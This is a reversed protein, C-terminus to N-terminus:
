PLHEISMSKVFPESVNQHWARAAIGVTSADIPVHRRRGDAHARSRSHTSTRSRSRRHDHQVIRSTGIPGNAEARGVLLLENASVLHVISRVQPPDVSDPLNHNILDDDDDWTPPGQDRQSREGTLEYQDNDHVARAEDHSFTDVFSREVIRSSM